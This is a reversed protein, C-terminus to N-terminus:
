SGQEGENKHIKQQAGGQRLCLQLGPLEGAAASGEVGGGSQHHSCGEVTTGKDWEKNREVRGRTPKM